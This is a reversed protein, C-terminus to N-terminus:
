CGNAIRDCIIASASAVNLSDFDRKFKITFKNLKEELRKPLGKGESGLFIAKKKNFKVKKLDVGDLTAGYLSFGVQKLYNAVLFFDKEIAIPLEVASGSSTRIVGSLNIKGIGSIIIGDVGFCYSNRIIAGINGIDTIEVLVLLFEKDKFDVVSFTQIDKIKALIGQHNGNRSLIQAKRNSIKEVQFNRFKNKFEKSFEKAFYITDILNPRKLAVYEVVRKGFIIM